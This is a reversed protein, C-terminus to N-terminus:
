SDSFYQSCKRGILNALCPSVKCRELLKKKRRLPPVRRIDNPPDNSGIFCHVYLKISEPPKEGERRELLFEHIADSTDKSMDIVAWASEFTREFRATQCGNDMMRSWHEIRLEEHRGNAREQNVATHWMTTTLVVSGVRHHHHLL